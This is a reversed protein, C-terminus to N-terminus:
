RTPLSAGGENLARFDITRDALAELLDSDHSIVLAGIRHQRLHGLLAAWLEAQSIADLQATIEDCILYRTSPVLLRVLAVRQLEGGSIEAPRCALWAPRIGLASMLEPRVPGGNELIQRVTWRPDVALEAAQLALQVPLAGRRPLAMGDVRVEGDEPQLSGALVRALTSKGIGSPGTLGLIEGQALDLSVDRLVQPLMPAHRFCIARASLM